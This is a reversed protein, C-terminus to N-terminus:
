SRTIEFAKFPNVYSSASIYTHITIIPTLHYSIRLLEVHHLFCHRLRDIVIGFQERHCRSKFDNIEM